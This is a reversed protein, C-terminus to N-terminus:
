QSLTLIFDFNQLIQCLSMILSIIDLRRPSRAHYKKILYNAVLLKQVKQLQMHCYGNNELAMFQLLKSCTLPFSVRLMTSDNWLLSVSFFDLVQLFGNNSVYIYDVQIRFHLQLVLSSRTIRVNPNHIPLALCVGLM